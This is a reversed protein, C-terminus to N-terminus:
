DGEGRESFEKLGALMVNRMRKTRTRYSQWTEGLWHAMPIWEKVARRRVFMTPDCGLRALADGDGDADM